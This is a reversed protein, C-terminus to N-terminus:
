ELEWLIQMGHYPYLHKPFCLVENGGGLLGLFKTLLCLTTDGAGLIETDNTVCLVIM